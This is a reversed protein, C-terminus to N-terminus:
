LFGFFAVCCAAWMMATHYNWQQTLIVAKIQRMISLTIPLHVKAPRTAQEKKIGKLVQQLRPTLQSYFAQHNGTAIHLNRVAALYVKITTHTLGQQGLHAVFLLLTSELTPVATHNILKCFTTYQYIGAQYTRQTSPALGRQYYHLVAQSLTTLDLRVGSPKPDGPNSSTDLIPNALGSSETSLFSSYVIYM